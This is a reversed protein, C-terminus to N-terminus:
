EEEGRMLEAIKELEEVFEKDDPLAGIRYTKALTIPTYGDREPKMSAFRGMSTRKNFGRYVELTGATADIVYAWECFLSDGGFDWSDQVVIQADSEAGAVLGLIEAGTDRALLPYRAKWKDYQDMRMMGNAGVGISALWADCEAEDAPTGFRCRRLNAIFAERKADDTMAERCFALATLGQGSPYHDWQGYQAIKHEGDLIVATLGRTGM